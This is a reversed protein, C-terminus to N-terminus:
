EQEDERKGSEWVSTRRVGTVRFPRKLEILYIRGWNQSVIRRSTARVVGFDQPSTQLRLKRTRPGEPTPQTVKMRYPGNPDDRCAGLGALGRDCTILWKAPAAAIEAVGAARIGLRGLYLEVSLKGARQVVIEDAGVIPRAARAFERMAEGDGTRAHRSLLHTHLFMVGIMGVIAVVAVRRLRWQLSWTVALVVGGLGVGILAGVARWATPSLGEPLPLAEQVGAGLADRFQFAAAVAGVALCIVIATAAFVHRLAGVTRGGGPGSRQVKVVAWAGLMAVPAYCPLLYDPRFGHALSFPLVVGLIWCLPLCFPSRRSFAWRLWDAAGRAGAVVTSCFADLTGLLFRRRSMGPAERLRRWRDSTAAAFRGAGRSASLVLAGVAFVSAPLTYYLLNLAAPTSSAKPAGAGAGTARQFIEFYILDRFEQGGRVFMGRWLPGLVAAMALLGWVFYTSGMARRLRRAMLRGAVEIKAWPGAVAQCAGFGPALCSAMTLTLGVLAVNVLGWGKSLAGLIMSAWLGVGWKWRARRPARHYLLRDACLISATMSATLLMDTAALYAMRGMHLCTAWLCAALLGVARGFWRRALVYVMLATLLTAAVTPWRFVFDDYIGTLKLGAATLWPYLQPKSAIRGTQNVPLLWEGTQLMSVATGIRRLQAYAYLHSPASAAVAVVAAVLAAILLV